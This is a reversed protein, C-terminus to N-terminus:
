ESNTTDFVNNIPTEPPQVSNQIVIKSEPKKSISNNLQDDITLTNINELELVNGEHVPKSATVTTPLTEDEKISEGLTETKNSSTNKKEDAVINM